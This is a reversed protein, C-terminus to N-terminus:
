VEGPRDFGGEPHQHESLACRDSQGEQRRVWGSHGSRQAYTRKEQAVVMPLSASVM